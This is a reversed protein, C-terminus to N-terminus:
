KYVRLYPAFKEALKDHAESLKRREAAIAKSLQKKEDQDDSDRRQGKLDMYVAFQKGIDGLLRDNLKEDFLWRAEKRLEIWEVHERYITEDIPNWVDSLCTKVLEDIRNYIRLRKDFLAIRREKNTARLHQGAVFVSAIAAVASAVAAYLNADMTNEKNEAALL